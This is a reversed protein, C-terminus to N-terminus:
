QGRATKLDADTNDSAFNEVVDSVKYNNVTPYGENGLGRDGPYSITTNVTVGAAAVSGIATQAAIRGASSDTAYFSGLAQPSNPVWPGKQQLLTVKAGSKVTQPFVFNFDLAIATTSIRGLYPVPQVQNKFGFAFVVWGPADPFQTADAVTVKSYQLGASLDQTITSEASTIAVGSHVDYSHPGLIVSTPAAVPTATCAGSSTYDTLTTTYTFTNVDIVSAVQQLGNLGGTTFTDSGPTLINWDRASTFSAGQAGSGAVLLGSAVTGSVKVTAGELVTAACTKFTMTPLDLYEVIVSTESGGLIYIKSGIRGAAFFARPVRMTPGPQWTKLVPDYIESTALYAVTTGQTPNYGLGGIAIVRGDDLLFLKHGVRAQSMSGVYAWTNGSINYLQCTATLTGVDSPVTYDLKTQVSTRGGVILVDTTNLQVGEPQCVGVNMNGTHAWTKLATTYLEATAWCSGGSNVGGMIMVNGDSRQVLCHGARADVLSGTAAWSGGSGIAGPTYLSANAVVTGMANIGNPTGGCFLVKNGATPSTLRCAAAFNEANPVVADSVNTMTYQTGNPTHPTSGTVTWLAVATSAGTSGPQVGSIMLARGDALPVIPAWIHNTGATTLTPSAVSAASYSTLTTGNGPVLPPAGLLGAAGDIYVWQGLVLGHNAAVATVVGASRLLSSVAIPNAVQGYAASLAQRSVAQSTTPLIVDALSGPVSVLAPRTASKITKVSPRFYLLSAQATQVLSVQATGKNSVEFWQTLTGSPYSVSVATVPFSGKNATSFENGYVNVYDGILLKTLDITNTSTSTFRTVARAADISITWTPSTTSTYIQLLTSFQLGNQAKGGQVQVSSSLGLSGSYLTVTTQGTQPDQTPAAYADSNAQRCARTIAAAVEIAQAQGIVAFDASQFVVPVTVNGDMLVTLDDGDNLAFPQILGTVNSARLSADGYFVELIELFSEETLKDNTIRITYDRFADDSLGMNVPRQIGTDAARRELYLGSSSSTFLQDFAFRANNRNTQEGTALSAILSEWGIGDFAANLHKRIIDEETDNQSGINVPEIQGSSTVNFSLSLPSQIASGTATQISASAVVAWSGVALPGNLFLNISQTDGSVIGCSLVIAVGPGTLTWNAPNLADHAGIPSVALPDQTFRVRVTALSTQTVTELELAIGVFQVSTSM